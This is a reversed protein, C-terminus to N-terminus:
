EPVIPVYYSFKNDPDYEAKVARLKELRWPEYGYVSELPEWGFAYNVNVTPLRGPQGEMLLELIGNALRKAPEELPLNPPYAPMALALINDARHPFASSTADIARIAAPNYVELLLISLKLAPYKKLYANFLEYVQRFATVNFQQLGTTSMMKSLGKVCPLSFRGNRTATDMAPYPVAGGVVNIPGLNNFPTLYKEAESEPGMYSFSWWLVADTTSILSNWEYHGFHFDLELPQGNGILKNLESFLGELKDKTFFYNRFYWTKTPAPYVKLEVSTVVGFNHGAGKMSWFLDPHSDNSVSISTGNALVANLQVLNDSMLGYLGQYRGHGGGLAPGLHGICACSATPTVFGEKWLTDVLNQTEVGGQVLAIQREHDVTINSLLHIDIGLGRFNGQTMPWGHGRNFTYFSIGNRNAYDIVTSVDSECGVEAIVTFQPPLYEEYRLTARLWRPDEPGFISSSECLLPGLETEIDFATLEARTM